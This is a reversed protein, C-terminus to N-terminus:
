IFGLEVLIEDSSPFFHHDKYFYDIYKGFDLFVKIDNKDVYDKEAIDLWLDMQTDNWQQLSIGEPKEILKM